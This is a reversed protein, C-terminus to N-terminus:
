GSGGFVLVPLSPDFSLDVSASPGESAQHESERFWKCQFLNAASKMLNKVQRM